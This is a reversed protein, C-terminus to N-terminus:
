GGFLRKLFPKQSNETLKDVKTLLESLLEENTKSLETAPKNQLVSTAQENLVRDVWNGITTRERKAAKSVRDRTEIQIGKITWPTVNSAKAKRPRGKKKPKSDSDEMETVEEDSM